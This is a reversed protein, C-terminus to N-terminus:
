TDVRRFLGSLTDIRMRILPMCYAPNGTLLYSVCRVGAPGLKLLHEVVKLVFHLRGRGLTRIREGRGIGEAVNQLYERTLKSTEVVHDVAVAPSYYIKGGNATLRLFLDKGEGGIRVAGVVGPLLESFGGIERFKQTRVTMNSEFPFQGRSFEVITDAYNFHGVLSSVYTSMWHPREPLFLPFIRGGMGVAHPYHDFFDLIAEVFDPRAVADDDMFCLLPARAHLAGTNRAFSAGPKIEQLFHVNANQLKPILELCDSKTSDTSANDVVIVEFWWAPATQEDLSRLANGLYAARNYTCIVVSLKPISTM